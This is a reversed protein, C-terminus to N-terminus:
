LFLICEILIQRMPAILRNGVDNRVPIKGATFVFRNRDPNVGVAIFDLQRQVALRYSTNGHFFVTMRFKRNGICGSPQLCFAVAAAFRYAAVNLFGGSRGNSQFKLQLILMRQLRAIVGDEIAVCQIRFSATNRISRRKDPKVAAARCADLTLAALELYASM